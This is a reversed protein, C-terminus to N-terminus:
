YKYGFVSPVPFTWLDYHVLDFPELLPALFPCGSTGVLSVPMVCPIMKARASSATTALAYPVVRPITTPLTPLPLTYLLGTSDYKALVCLPDFEM